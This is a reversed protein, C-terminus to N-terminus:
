LKKGIVVNPIFRHLNIRHFFSMKILSRNDKLIWYNRTYRHLAEPIVPRPFLRYSFYLFYCYPFALKGSNNVPKGNKVPWGVSTSSNSAFSFYALFQSRTTNENVRCFSFTRMNISYILLMKAIHRDFCTRAADFYELLQMKWRTCHFVRPFCKKKITTISFPFCGNHHFTLLAFLVRLDFQSAAPM